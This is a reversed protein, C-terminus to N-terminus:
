ANEPMRCHADDPEGVLQALVADRHLGAMDDQGAREGTDDEGLLAVRQVSIEALEAADGHLEDLPIGISSTALRKLCPRAAPRRLIPRQHLRQLLMAASITESLPKSQSSSSVSCEGFSSGSRRDASCATATPDAVGITRGAQFSM